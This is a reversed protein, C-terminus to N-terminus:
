IENFYQSRTEYLRNDIIDGIHRYGIKTYIEWYGNMKIMKLIYLTDQYLKNNLYKM